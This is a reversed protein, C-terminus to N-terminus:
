PMGGLYRVDDGQRAYTAPSLVHHMHALLAQPSSITSVTNFGSMVTNVNHENVGGCGKLDKCRKQKQDM